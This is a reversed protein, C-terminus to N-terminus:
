KVITYLAFSGDMKEQYTEKKVKLKRKKVHDALNDCKLTWIDDWQAGLKKEIKQIKNIKRIVAKFANFIAMKVPKKPSPVLTLDGPRIDNYHKMMEWYLELDFCEGNALKSKNGRCPKQECFSQYWMFQYVKEQYLIYKYRDNPYVLECFQFYEDVKPVQQKASNCPRVGESATTVAHALNANLANDNPHHLSPSQMEGLIPPLGPSAVPSRRAPSCRPSQRSMWQSILLSTM